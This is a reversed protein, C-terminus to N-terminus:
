LGDEQPCGIIEGGAAAADAATGSAMAASPTLEAAGGRARQRLRLYDIKGTPTKPLEDCSVFRRPVMFPSMAGRSFRGLADWVHAVGDAPVVFACIEDGIMEHPVGVVAVERVMGSSHLLEEVETPNVRVGMSKLQQDRRGCFTLLGNDDIVGYDGTFFANPAMVCGEPALPDRRIARATAAPDNWYGLCIYDGRHVIEGLEGPAAVEGNEHVVAVHVGPIGRGISHRQTRALAPDLYSTRYTETLGYNLFVRADAFLEFLDNLVPSPITGGTNTITAISSRDTARFPSVGRLLYTFVSPIGALVTPRHREIAECLAFPNPATPLVITAGMVAATLLQGYGYDFSWPVTCLIRDAASTGLYSAVARCGRFLNGHSQTVGKPAGTSGSTFVISAPDTPLPAHWSPLVGTDQAVRDSTIIRTACEVDPLQDSRTAVIARPEVTALAHSFHSAGARPDMIAAIAGVGWCGFIAAAMEPATQMWILVRDGPTVGHSLLAHRYDDVRSRWAQFTVREDGQLFAAAQPRQETCADLAKLPTSVM